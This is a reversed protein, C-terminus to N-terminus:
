ADRFMRISWFERDGEEYPEAIASIGWEDMLYSDDEDNEDAWRLRMRERGTVTVEEHSAREAEARAAEETPFVDVALWLWWGEPEVIRDSDWKPHESVPM